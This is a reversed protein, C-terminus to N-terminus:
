PTGGGSGGEIEDLAAGLLRAVREATAPAEAADERELKTELEDLEEGTSAVQDNPNKTM